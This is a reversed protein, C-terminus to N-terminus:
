RQDLQGEDSTSCDQVEVAVTSKGLRASRSAIALYFLTMWRVIAQEQERV